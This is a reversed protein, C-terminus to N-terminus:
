SNPYRHSPVQKQSLPPPWNGRKYQPPLSGASLAAINHRSLYFGKATHLVVNNESLLVVSPDHEDMMFRNLSPSLPQACLSVITESAGLYLESRHAAEPCLLLIHVRTAQLTRYAGSPPFVAIHNGSASSFLNIVLNNKKMLSVPITRPATHLLGSLQRYPIVDGPQYPYVSPLSPLGSHIPLTIVMVGWKRKM